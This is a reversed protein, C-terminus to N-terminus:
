VSESPIDIVRKKYKVNSIIKRYTQGTHDTKFLITTALSYLNETSLKIYRSAVRNLKEALCSYLYM